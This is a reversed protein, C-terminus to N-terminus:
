DYHVITVNGSGSLLLYIDCGPNPIGTTSTAGNIFIKENSDFDGSGGDVCSQYEFHVPYNTGGLTEIHTKVTSWGSNHTLRLCVNASGSYQESHGLTDDENGETCSGVDGAGGDGVPGTGGGGSGSSGGKGGSGSTGGAGSTGGSGSTGGTSGSGDGGEGLTGGTGSSGSVGASGGFASTGGGTGGTSGGVGAGKGGSSGSGGSGGSSGGSGGNGGGKQAPELDADVGQACAWSLLALSVFWGAHVSSLSRGWRKLSM